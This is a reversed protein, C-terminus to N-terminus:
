TFEHLKTLNGESSINASSSQSMASSSHFLAPSSALYQELVSKSESRATARLYATLGAVTQKLMALEQQLLWLQHPSPTNEKDSSLTWTLPAILDSSTMAQKSDESTISEVKICRYTNERQYNAANVEDETGLRYGYRLNREHAHQYFKHQGNFTTQIGSYEIWESAEWDNDVEPQKTALPFKKVIEGRLLSEELLQQPHDSSLTTNHTLWYQYIRLTCGQAFSQLGSENLKLLGAQYNLSVTRVFVSATQQLQLLVTKVSSLKVSPLLHQLITESGKLSLTFSKGEVQDYQGPARDATHTVQAYITILLGLLKQYFLTQFYTLPNDEQYVTKMESLRQRIDRLASDMESRKAHFDGHQSFHKIQSLMEQRSAETKLLQKQDQPRKKPSLPSPSRDELSLQSNSLSLALPYHVSGSFELSSDTSISKTFSPPLQSFYTESNVESGLLIQLLGDLLATEQGIRHATKLLEANKNKAGLHRLIIGAHCVGQMEVSSLKKQGSLLETKKEDLWQALGSQMNQIPKLVPAACHYQAFTAIVAWQRVIRSALVVDGNFIQSIASCFHIEDVIEMGVVPASLLTILSSVIPGAVPILKAAASLGKALWGKVGTNIKIKGSSIAMAGIIAQNLQRSLILCYDKQQTDREIHEEMAKLRRDSALFNEIQRLNDQQERLQNLIHGMWQQCQGAEEPAFSQSKLLTEVDKLKSLDEPLLKKWEALPQIEAQQQDLTVKFEKQETKLQQIQDDQQTIQRTLDMLSFLPRSTVTSPRIDDATTDSSSDPRYHDMKFEKALQAKWALLHTGQLRDLQQLFLTKINTQTEIWRQFTRMIKAAESLNAVSQILRTHDNYVSGRRAIDHDSKVVYLSFLCAVGLTNPSHIFLHEKLIALQRDGNLRLFLEIMPWFSQISVRQHELYDSGEPSTRTLQATIIKQKEDLASYVQSNKGSTGAIMQFTLETTQKHQNLIFVIKSLDSLILRYLTIQSYESCIQDKNLGTILRHYAKLLKHPLLNEHSRNLIFFRNHVNAYKWFCQQAVERPSFDTLDTFDALAPLLYSKFDPKLQSLVQCFTTILLWQEDSTMVPSIRPDHFLPFKIKLVQDQQILSLPLIVEAYVFSFQSQGDDTHLETEWQDLPTKLFLLIPHSHKVEALMTDDPHLATRWQSLFQERKKKFKSVFQCFERVELTYPTVNKKFDPLALLKKSIEQELTGSKEENYYARLYFNKWFQQDKIMLRCQTLM